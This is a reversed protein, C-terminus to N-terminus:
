MRQVTDFKGGVSSVAQSTVANDLRSDANGQRARRRSAKGPQKRICGSGVGVALGDGVDVLIQEVLRVVVALGDVIDRGEVSDEVVAEGVLRQQAMVQDFSGVD